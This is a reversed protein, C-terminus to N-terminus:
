WVKALTEGTAKACWHLRQQDKELEALSIADTDQTDVFDVDKVGHLLFKLTQSGLVDGDMPIGPVDVLVSGGSSSLQHALAVHYDIFAYGAAPHQAYDVFYKKWELGAISMVLIISVAISVHRYRRLLQIVSVIGIAASIYVAPAAGLSRLSHPLYETSLAAPVIFVFLWLLLLLRDRFAIATGYGSVLSAVGIIMFIGVPWLLAPAGSINHAWAPDGTIHFMGLQTLMNQAFAAFPHPLDFVSISAARLFADVPNHIFYVLLPMVVVAATGVASLWRWAYLANWTERIRAHETWRSFLEYMCLFGVLLPAFRFPIYTYMGAGLAFGMGVYAWWDHTRVARIAFFLTWVLFMVMLEARFAMRSFHVVWFGTAMFFSAWLAVHRTAIEKTCLYIGLVSLVGALASVFRLQWIGVGFLAFVYSTLSIFLGERGYNDTYFVARDGSEMAVIADNGNAAEDLHLGPPVTELGIFRFACAVVIIAILM